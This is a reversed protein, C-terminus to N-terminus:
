IPDPDVFVNHYGELLFIWNQQNIGFNSIKKSKNMAYHEEGFMDKLIERMQWRHTMSGPVDIAHTHRSRRIMSPWRLRQRLPKADSM